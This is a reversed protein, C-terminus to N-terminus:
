AVWWQWGSLGRKGHLKICGASILSGFASSLVNGFFFISTRKTLEACDAALVRITTPPTGDRTYWTNLTYLSGPIFGSELVPPDASQQVSRARWESGLFIRAAWWGSKNKVLFTLTEAIGWIIIQIPIWNHPGVRQLVVNSPIELLVV